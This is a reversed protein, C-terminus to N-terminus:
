RGRSRARSRRRRRVGIRQHPPLTPAPLCWLSRQTAPLRTEVSLLLGRIPLLGDTGLLGPLQAQASSRADCPGNGPCSRPRIFQFAAHRSHCSRRRRSISHSTLGLRLLLLLLVSHLFVSCLCDDLLLNILDGSLVDVFALLVAKEDAHAGDNDSDRVCDLINSTAPAKKQPGEEEGKQLPVPVLM